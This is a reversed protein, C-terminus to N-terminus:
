GGCDAMACVLRCMLVGVMCVVVVFLVLLLLLIYANLFVHVKTSINKWIIALGLILVVWM